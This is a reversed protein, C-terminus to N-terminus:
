QWVQNTFGQLPLGQTLNCELTKQDTTDFVLPAPGIKTQLPLIQEPPRSIIPSLTPSRSIIQVPNLLLKQLTDIYVYIFIPRDEEKPPPNTRANMRFMYGAIKPSLKFVNASSGRGLCGRSYSSVPKM